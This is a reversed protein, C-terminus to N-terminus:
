INCCCNKGNCVFMNNVVCIMLYNLIRYYCYLDKIINKEM